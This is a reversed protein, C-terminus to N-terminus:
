YGRRRAERENDAPDELHSRLYPQVLLTVLFGLLANQALGMDDASLLVALMYGSLILVMLILVSKNM